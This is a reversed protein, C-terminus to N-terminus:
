NSLVRGSFWWGAYFLTACRQRSELFAAALYHKDQKVTLLLCTPQVCINLNILWTVYWKNMKFGKKIDKLAVNFTAPLSASGYQCAMIREFLFGICGTTRGRNGATAFNSNCYFTLPSVVKKSHIHLLKSLFSPEMTNRDFAIRISCM